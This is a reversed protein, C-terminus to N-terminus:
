IYPDISKRQWTREEYKIATPTPESGDCYWHVINLIVLKAQTWEELKSKTFIKELFNYEEIDIQPRQRVTFFFFFVSYVFCHYLIMPILSTQMYQTVLIYVPCIYYERLRTLKCIIWRGQIVCGVTVRWSSIVARGTGILTRPRTSLKSSSSGPFLSYMGKSKDIEDPHYCHLFERVMLSRAGNSMAEYLVEM